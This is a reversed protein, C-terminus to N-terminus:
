KIRHLQTTTGFAAIHGSDEAVYVSCDDDIRMGDPVLDCPITGILEGDRPRLVYAEHQPVFLAGQRLHLELRRPQDSEVPHSFVHSFRTIGTSADLCIITGSATNAIVSDETALWSSPGQALGPAQQWLPRGTDREFAAAGLGRSSRLPVVVAETSMLLAQGSLPREKLEVAWRVEGSDIALCLLRTPGQRSGTVAFVADRDAMVDGTFPLRDCTRWTVEGTTVDLATMASAGGAVILLRGARRVRYAGAAPATYRWRIEGSVLDVATLRREGESVVVIKPLGPSQVVAGTAGGVARPALRVAARMVGTDLDHLCVRGDPHIRVLGHATAITGARRTAVRWVLQGTAAELCLTERLSSAFFRSGQLAISRLDLNPVVATWRPVFRMKGGHEWKGQSAVVRPPATFSRYGSSRSRSVSHDTTLRTVQEDLAEASERLALLRLNRRQAADLTELHEALAESFQAVVRAFDVPALEPFTIAPGGTQHSRKGLSFALAADGLGRRVGLRLEGVEIRRFLARAAQWAEMVEGALELLREAVLFLQVGNVSVTRGRVKVRFTALMLLSHLDSRESEPAGRGSQETSRLEGRAGLAFGGHVATAFECATHRVRAAKSTAQAMLASRAAALSTELTSPRQCSLVENVASLVGSRLDVLAVRRGYTAVEPSVGARYVSLLADSGDAELGLDWAEQETYLHLTARAREGAMLEAVAHALEGILAIAQSEGIRATLNVGDVVVDFLGYLPGTTRQQAPAVAPRVLVHIASM